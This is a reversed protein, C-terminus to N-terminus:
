PSSEFSRIIASYSPLPEHSSNNISRSRFEPHLHWASRPDDENCRLAILLAPDYPLSQCTEEYTPLQGTMVRITIPLEVNFGSLTGDTTQCVIEFKLRHLVRVAESRVDCQIEKSSEPVSVCLTKSWVMPHTQTPCRRFDEERLYRIIRGHRKPKGGFRGHIAPCCMYEKLKCILHKLHIDEILSAIRVLSNQQLSSFECYRIQIDDGFAYLKTPISLEYDLKNMWQNSVAIPTTLAGQPTPIQRSLYLPRQATYDSFLSPRIVLACLQYEVVYFSAVQTSEPLHGSLPLEFGFTHDGANIRYSISRSPLFSWEHQVLSHVERFLREHGNGAPETWKITMTGSFRLIISKVTTPKSLYLSLVGRLVCGPSESRSGNMVLHDSELHIELTQRSPRKM